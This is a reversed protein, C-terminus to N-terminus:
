ESARQEAAIQEEVSAAQPRLALLRTSEESLQLKQTDADLEVLVEGAQVERDLALTSAVVRGTYQSEIPHAARDVELDATDSVAYVLVRARFFWALWLTLLVAAILLGWVSRYSTESELFRESRFFPNAM